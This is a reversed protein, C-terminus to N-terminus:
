ILDMEVRVCVWIIECDENLEIPRYNPNLSMLYTHPGDIALKKITAEKSGKIKAVVIRGSLAEIKPDVIVFAGEPISVGQGSPNFMSDGTVRLSFSYPSVKASTEIWDTWENSQQEVIEKWSGAQM